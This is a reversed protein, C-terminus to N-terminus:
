VGLDYLVVTTYYLRHGLRSATSYLFCGFLPGLFPGLFPPCRIAHTAHDSGFGVTIM